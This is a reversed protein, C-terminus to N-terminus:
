TPSFDRNLRWNQYQAQCPNMTPTQRPHCLLCSLKPLQLNSSDVTFVLLLHRSQFHFSSNRYSNLKKANVLWAERKLSWNERKNTDGSCHTTRKRSAIILYLLSFSPQIVNKGSCQLHLFYASSTICKRAKLLLEAIFAEPEETM